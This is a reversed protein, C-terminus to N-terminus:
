EGTAKGQRGARLAKKRPWSDGLRLQHVHKREENSPGTPDVARTKHPM